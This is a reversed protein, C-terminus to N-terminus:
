CCGNGGLLDHDLAYQVLESKKSIGLKAFIRTKYTDVTKLSLNMEEGAESLSYGRVLLGLVELERKSFLAYPDVCSHKDDTHLLSNVMLMAHDSSLYVQGMMVVEIAHLLDKACATKEVYGSAGNMMAAKVYQEESHGTLIIVHMDSNHAKIRKLVEIGSMDPMTIDLLLIDAAVTEVLALAEQGCDAEGAIKMGEAELILRLGTRLIAHDDALIVKIADLKM